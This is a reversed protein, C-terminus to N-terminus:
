RFVISAYSVSNRYDGLIDGSTYHMLLEATPKQEFQEIISLVILIPMYGCITIGTENIYDAFGKADIKKILEIARKDLENLRDPIELTFPVYGYNPGYHTFDSSVIFVVKKNKVTALIEKGLRGYEIDRGITIPVIRLDQIRDKSVFQLFPLQVELSHEYKHASENIRLHTNEKLAIIMDKDTKILGFPTRWDEISLGSNSGQHNPALIVYCRPFDSEAIEKYAWAACAGSFSYGAHPIIAATLRQTKRKVPLEGPGKKSNFCEKIQKDLKDFTSEYFQGAVIAERVM